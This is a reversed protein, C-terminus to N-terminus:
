DPDYTGTHFPDPAEVDRELLRSVHDRLSEASFPKPLFADHPTLDRLDLHTDTAGSVFLAPVRRQFRRRLQTVLTTGPMHPMLVDTVIVGPQPFHGDAADVAESPRGFARVQMHPSLCRVIMRLVAPDDDIVWAHGALRNPPEPAPEGAAGVDVLPLRVTFTAGSPANNRWTISGSAATVIRHVTALGLGTGGTELRTTVFPEFLRPAIHDPVGGGTDAIAVVLDGRDVRATLEIKGTRRRGAATISANANTILNLIVQEFAIPDMNLAVRHPPPTADVKLEIGTSLLRRVLRAFSSLVSFPEIERARGVSQRSFALLRTTLEAGAEAAERIEDLLAHIESDAGDIALGQTASGLIIALLNNFDHAASSALVGLSQLRDQALQAQEEIDRNSIDRVVAMFSALTGGEDHVASLKLEAVYAEGDPRHCTLRTLLPERTRLAQRLAVIGEPETHPGFLVDLPEGQLRDLDYGSVAEFAHNAYYIRPGDQVDADTILVAERGQDVARALVDRQRKAAEEARRDVLQVLVNDENSSIRTAHVEVEIAHEGDIATLPARHRTGMPSTRCARHLETLSARDAGIAISVLPTGPLDRGREPLLECLAANVDRITGSPSVWVSPAPAGDFLARYDDLRRQVTEQSQRLETAQLELEAHFVHLEHLLTDRDGHLDAAPPIGDRLLRRAEERIADRDTGDDDRPSM